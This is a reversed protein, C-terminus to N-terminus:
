ITGLSRADHRDALDFYLRRYNEAMRQLSFLRVARLQVAYGVQRRLNSDAALVQLKSALTEADGPTFLWGCEDTLVETNGGVRTVLVPLASAMAELLTNSMGEGISSLVFVDMANLWDPVDQTAGAFHVQGRLEPSQSVYKQLGDLEPGSGVLLIHFSIGRRQLIEGARLITYHDKIAVLRGVSGFVFAEPRIGLQERIAFRAKANPAFRNTDVGNYIVRIRDPAIWAQRSHYDRLQATVTLVVDAMGYALRRLLRRRLPLGSINDLEYGHESHVVIPVRAFRAAPIAEIAGWNRSHVIHPRYKKM